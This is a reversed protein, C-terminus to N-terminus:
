QFRKVLHGIFGLGSSEHSRAVDGGNRIGRGGGPRQGSGPVAVRSMAQSDPSYLVLVLSWNGCLHRANLM